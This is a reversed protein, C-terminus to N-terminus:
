RGRRRAPRTAPRRPKLLSLSTARMTPATAPGPSAEDRSALNRELYSLQEPSFTERRLKLLHPGFAAEIQKGFRAFMEAIYVDHRILTEAMRVIPESTTHAGVVDGALSAMLAIRYDAAVTFLNDAGGMRVGNGEHLYVRCDPGLEFPKTDLGFLIILLKVGRAVAQRLAPLHPRIVQDSAKIWIHLRASEILEEVKGHVAGEGTVTWVYDRRPGSKLSVLGKGLRDCAERVEM